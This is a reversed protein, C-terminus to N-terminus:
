HRDNSTIGKHSFSDEKTPDRKEDYYVSEM